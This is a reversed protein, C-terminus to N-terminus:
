RFQEARAGPWRGFATGAVTWAAGPGYCRCHGTELLALLGRTSGRLMGPERCASAVVPLSTALSRPTKSAATNRDNARTQTREAGCTSWVLPRKDDPYVVRRLLSPRPREHQTSHECRTHSGSPSERPDRRRVPLDDSASPETRRTCQRQGSRRALRQLGHDRQTARDFPADPVRHQPRETQNEEGKEEGQRDHMAHVVLNVLAFQHDTNRKQNHRDDREHPRPKGAQTNDAQSRRPRGRGGTTQARHRGRQTPGM